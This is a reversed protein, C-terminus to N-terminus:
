KRIPPPDQDHLIAWATDLRWQEAVRWRRLVPTDRVSRFYEILLAMHAARTVDKEAAAGVANCSAAYHEIERRGGWVLGEAIGPNVAALAQLPQVDQGQDELWRHVAELLAYGRKDQGELPPLAEALAISQRVIRKKFRMQREANMLRVLAVWNGDLYMRDADTLTADIESGPVPRALSVERGHLLEWAGDLIRQRFISKLAFYSAEDTTPLIGMAEAAAGDLNMLETKRSGQIVRAIVISWKDMVYEQEDPALFPGDGIMHVTRSAEIAARISESTRAALFARAVEVSPTRYPSDWQEPSLPELYYLAMEVLARRFQRQQETGMHGILADLNGALYAGRADAIVRTQVSSIMPADDPAQGGLAPSDDTTM